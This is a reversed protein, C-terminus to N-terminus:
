CIRIKDYKQSIKSDSFSQDEFFFSVKYLKVL